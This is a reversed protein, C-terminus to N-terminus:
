ASPVSRDHADALLIGRVPVPLTGASVAHRRGGRRVNALTRLLDALDLLTRVPTSNAQNASSPSVQYEALVNNGVTGSPNPSPPKATYFVFFRGNTKFQPHFALGLLGQESGNATVTASVDLFPTSQIQGDVIVKITGGQEVVFLRNSGDGAHTILVPSSLGSTVFPQLVLSNDPAALPGAVARPPAGMQSLQSGGVLSVLALLVAWGALRSTRM